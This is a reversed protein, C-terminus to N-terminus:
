FAYDNFLPHISGVRELKWEETVPNGKRDYELKELSFHDTGHVNIIRGVCRGNVYFNDHIEEETVHAPAVKAAAHVIEPKSGNLRIVNVLKSLPKANFVDRFAEPSQQHINVEAVVAKVIDITIAELESIFKVTEAQFQPELLSDNVVEIITELSLNGFTKIYRIRSPRSLMNENVSLANTTLLFVHRHQSNFAGDMVSLMSSDYRDYIKEYEDFFLVAPQPLENILQPLLDFKDNVLIVPLNLANCIQQATVTKGTGKYGNMVIGLNGTTRAYSRVVRSVFGTELGYVKYPFEFRDQVRRLYCEKTMGDELVKYIGGALQPSQNSAERLRSDDAMQHWIRRPQM